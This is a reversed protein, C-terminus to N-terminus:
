RTFLRSEERVDFPLTRDDNRREWKNMPGRKGKVFQISNHLAVHRVCQRSVGMASATESMNFGARAFREYDRASYLHKRM